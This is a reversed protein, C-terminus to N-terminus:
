VAVNTTQAGFGSPLHPPVYSPWKDYSPWAVGHGLHRITGRSGRAVGTLRRILREAEDVNIRGDSLLGLILTCESNM